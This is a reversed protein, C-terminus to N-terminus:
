IDSATTALTPLRRQLHLNRSAATIGEDFLQKHFMALEPSTWPQGPIICALYIAGSAIAEWHDIYVSDDIDTGTSSPELAVTFVISSSISPLPVVTVTGIPWEIFRAPVGTQTRWDSTHIEEYDISSSDLAPSAGDVMVSLVRAVRTGTPALITYPFDTDVLAVADMVQVWALSDHCLKIAARRILGDLVFEPCQPLTAQVTPLIFSIPTAM